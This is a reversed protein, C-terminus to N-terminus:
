RAKPQILAVLPLQILEVDLSQQLTSLLQDPRKLNFIGSVKQAGLISDTILIRGPLYRQLERVVDSLPQQDVILKGRQWALQQQSDVTSIPSLQYKHLSAQQNPLLTHAPVPQSHNRLVVRGEEVTVTTEAQQRVSFVTGLVRTESDHSIVVFPRNPNHAVDFLAEGSHLTIQRREPQLDVSLATASNLLIRTGDELEIQRQEGVQTSYDAYATALPMYQLTIALACLSAAIPMALWGWRRRKEPESPPLKELQHQHASHTYGVDQWLQEAALAASEHQPSLRRWDDFARFDSAAADGSRLQVMLEIAQDELADQLSSVNM